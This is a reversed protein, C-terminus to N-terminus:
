DCDKQAEEFEKTDFFEKMSIGLGDCIKMITFIGPNRSTGDMIHLLTTLPITSRYSLSYYSVGQEKCLQEIRAQLVAQVVERNLEKGKEKVMHMEEKTNEFEIVTIPLAVMNPLEVKIRIHHLAYIVNRDFKM